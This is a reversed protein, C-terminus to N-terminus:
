SESDVPLSIRVTTGKGVESDIEITGELDDIVRKCIALGLGTGETKTSFSPEFLMDQSEQPIGCGTDTIEILINSRERDKSRDKRVETKVHLSGGEPMAQLANQILNVFVRQMEEPDIQLTTMQEGYETILRIGKLSDTFLRISSQLIENIHSTKVNRRPLRAFSSFEAAINRLVDIQETVMKVTDSLILDFNEAKDKYAQMLHQISLKMPTLPNKVEHAVQRAMERWAADKEVQILREQSAKLDTTMTNFSTVLDGLEDKAKMKIRFDLDGTAIHKTGETLEKVPSSIRRSLFFGILLTISFIIAYLVLIISITGATEQELKRQQYITPISLVAVIKGIRDVLPIYGEIYPREGMVRKSYFYKKELLEVSLVADGPLKRSILESQFLESRTSAIETGRHYVTVDRGIKISVNRCLADDIPRVYEIYGKPGSTEDLGFLPSIVGVSLRPSHIYMLRPSFISQLQERMNYVAQETSNRWLPKGNSDFITVTAKGFATTDIATFSLSTLFKLFEPQSTVQQASTFTEEEILTRALLLDKEIQSQIWEEQQSLIIHRGFYAMFLMPFIILLTFSFILKNQFRKFFVIRRLGGSTAIAIIRYISYIFIFFLLFTFLLRFFDYVLTVTGVKEYGVSVMELVKADTKRPFYFNVFRKDGIMEDARVWDEKQDFIADLVWDSPRYGRLLDPDTSEVLVESEYTSIVIRVPGYPHTLVKETLIPRMLTPYLGEMRALVRLPNKVVPINLIVAGVLQENSLIPVAGSYLNIEEGNVRSHSLTMFTGEAKEIEEIEAFSAHRHEFPIDLSFQSVEEGQANLITISSGYHFRSLPSKIWEVFALNKVKAYHGEVLSEQINKSLRFYDLSIEVMTHILPETPELAETTRLRILHDEEKMVETYFIPFSLLACTMTLCVLFTFHHSRRHLIRQNMWLSIFVIIIFFVSKEIIYSQHTSVFTWMIGICFFILFICGLRLSRKTFILRLRRHVWYVILLCLLVFSISLLFLNIITIALPASSFFDLYRFFSLTSDHVLSRVGSIYADFLFHICAIAPLSVVIHILRFRVPKEPEHGPVTFLKWGLYINSSLFLLTILLDGPSRSLGFLFSSAYSRPDFLTLPILRQPFELLLFGYRTIWLFTTAGLFLVISKLFASHQRNPEQMIRNYLAKILVCLYIFLTLSLFLSLLRATKKEEVQIFGQFTPATFRAVGLTLNRSDTLVVSIVEDHAPLWTDSDSQDRESSMFELRFASRVKSGIDQTFSSKGFLSSRHPVHVKLLRYMIVTGLHQGATQDYIPVSVCLITYMQGKIVFVSAAGPFANQRISEHPPLISGTWAVSHRDRDFLEIGYDGRFEPESHLLIQFLIARNEINPDILAQHISVDAAIHQAMSEASRSFETFGERVTALDKQLSARSFNEWDKQAKSVTSELHLKTALSVGLLLLISATFVHHATISAHHNSKWYWYILVVNLLLIFVTVPFSLVTFQNKVDLMLLINLVGATVLVNTMQGSETSRRIGNLITHGFTNM